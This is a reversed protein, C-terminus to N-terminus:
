KTMSLIDQVCSRPLFFRRAQCVHKPLSDAMEARLEQASRAIQYDNGEGKRESRCKLIRGSELITRLESMAALCQEHLTRFHM